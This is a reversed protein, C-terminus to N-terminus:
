AGRDTDGGRFPPDGDGSEGLTEVFDVDDSNEDDKEDSEYDAVPLVLFLFLSFM